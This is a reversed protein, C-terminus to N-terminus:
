RFGNTIVNIDVIWVSQLLYVIDMHSLSWRRLGPVIGFLLPHGYEGLDMPFRMLTLLGCQSFFINKGSLCLKTCEEEVQKKWIRELRGNKKM